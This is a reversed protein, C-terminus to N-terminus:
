RKQYSSSDRKLIYGWKKETMIDKGGDGYDIAANIAQGSSRGQKGKKRFPPYFGSDASSNEQRRKTRSSAVRERKERLTM